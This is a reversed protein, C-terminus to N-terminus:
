LITGGKHVHRCVQKSICVTNLHIGLNYVVNSGGEAGDYGLKVGLDRVEAMRVQIGGVSERQTM